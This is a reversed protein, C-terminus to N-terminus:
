GTDRTPFSFIQGRTVPNVRIAILRDAITRRQTMETTKVFSRFVSEFQRLLGIVVPPCRRSIIEE